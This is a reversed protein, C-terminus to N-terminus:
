SQCWIPTTLVMGQSSYRWFLVRTAVSYSTSHAWPVTQVNSLFDKAELSGFGAGGLVYGGPYWSCLGAEWNVFVSNSYNNCYQVKM